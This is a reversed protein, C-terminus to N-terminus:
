YYKYENSFAAAKDRQDSRIEDLYAQHSRLANAYDEKTADGETFLRKISDLSKRCGFGVAIMWHKLARDMNDNIDEDVGLNYRAGVHGGMAALEWYYRAKKMDERLYTFGINHYSDTNGLEGAQHWLELAKMEDQPYGYKGNKCFVGCNFLAHHDNVIIRKRLRKVGEEETDPAPTRCFPCLQDDTLGANAHVCGSCIVKGCCVKYKYATELTPMQLFCIPCDEEQPQKFLDEDSVTRIQDSISMSSLLSGLVQSNDPENSTTTPLQQVERNDSICVKCRRQNLKWQKKSFKDKPLVEHCAACTKM